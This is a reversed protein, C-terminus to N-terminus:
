ITRRFEYADATTRATVCYCNSVEMALLSDVRRQVLPLCDQLEMLEGTNGSGFCCVHMLMDLRQAGSSILDHGKRRM